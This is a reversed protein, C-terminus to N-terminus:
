VDASHVYSKSSGLGGQEDQSIGRCEFSAVCVPFFDHVIGSSPRQQGIYAVDEDRFYGANLTKCWMYASADYKVSGVGANDARGAEGVFALLCRATGWAGSGVSRAM